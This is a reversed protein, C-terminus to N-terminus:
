QKAKSQVFVFLIGLTEVIKYCDYIFSINKLFLFFSLFFHFLFFVFSFCNHISILINKLRNWFPVLNCVLNLLYVYIKNAKSLDIM